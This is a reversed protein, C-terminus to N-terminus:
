SGNIKSLFGAHLANIFIIRAHTITDMMALSDRSIGILEQEARAEQLTNSSHRNTEAFCRIVYGFQGPEPEFIYIHCPRRRRM